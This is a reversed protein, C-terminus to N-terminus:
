FNTPVTPIQIFAIQRKLVRKSIVCDTENGDIDLPSSHMAMNNRDMTM